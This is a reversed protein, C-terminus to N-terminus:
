LLWFLGLRGPLSSPLQLLYASYSLSILSFSSCLSVRQSSTAPNNICRGSNVLLLAHV